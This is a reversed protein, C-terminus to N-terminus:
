ATSRANASFTAVRTNGPGSEGFHVLPEDVSVVWAQVQICRCWCGRNCDIAFVVGSLPVWKRILNTISEKIFTMAADSSGEPMQGDGGNLEEDSRGVSIARPPSPKGEKMHYTDSDFADSVM